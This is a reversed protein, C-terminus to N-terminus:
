DHIPLVLISNLVPSFAQIFRSLSTKKQSDEQFNIMNANEKYGEIGIFAQLCALINQIPQLLQTVLINIIDISKLSVEDISKPKEIINVIVIKELFISDLIILM